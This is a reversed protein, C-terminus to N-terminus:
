FISLALGCVVSMSLVVAIMAYGFDSMNKEESFIIGCQLM